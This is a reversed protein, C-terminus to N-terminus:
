QPRLKLGDVRISKPGDFGQEFVTAFALSADLVGSPLHSGFVITGSQRSGPAVSVSWHSRFSDAEITTGDDGVVVCNGLLPLSLPNGVNNRVTVTLRTYHPTDEFTDVALGLGKSSTSVPAVLRDVGPESGTVVGVVYRTGLTVALGGGGIVLLVTVIATTLRLGRRQREHPIPETANTAPDDDPEPWANETHATAFAAIVAVAVAAVPVALWAYSGTTKSVLAATANGVLGLVGTVLGLTLTLGTRVRRTTGPEGPAV